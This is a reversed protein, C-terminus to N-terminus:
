EEVIFKGGVMGMWCSFPLTGTETPTFEVINKGPRLKGSSIGLRPIIVEDTCGSLNIANIEWRVPIDKQIRFVTPSYVYDVDMQVVQMGETEPTSIQPSSETQPSGASSLSFSFKSGSLVLGSQLSYLGFFLILVGVVKKFLGIKNGGSAYSSGMGVGLLVPLTGITFATMILAGTLFDGSAVAAIQMSQTFGCPLFFTLFGIVVPVFPHRSKQWRSIFQEIGKPISVGFRTISPALGLIHFGVLLMIVAVLITLYGTFSTSYQIQQGLAGLLGGLLFFGGIRGAHFLIQPRARAFLGTNKQIHYESSFSMVLGGTLALCTSVSAVIGLLFAIGFGIEQSIDPFYRTIDIYSLSWFIVLFVVAILAIQAYYSWTKKPDAKKEERKYGCKEITKQIKEQPIEKASEVTLTGKAFSAKASKVNPIEMIEKQLLTECSTCHMGSVPYTKKMIIFLNKVEAEQSL